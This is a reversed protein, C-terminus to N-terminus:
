PALLNASTLERVLFRGARQWSEDTDGRFSVLRDFVLKDAALDVVQV